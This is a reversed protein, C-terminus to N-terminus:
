LAVCGGCNLCWRVSYGGDEDYSIMDITDEHECNCENGFRKLSTIYDWIRQQLECYKSIAKEICMM